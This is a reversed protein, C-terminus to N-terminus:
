GGPPWHRRIAEVIAKTSTDLSAGLITFGPRLGARKVIIDGMWRNGLKLSAFVEPSVFVDLRGGGLARLGTGLALEDIKGWPIPGDSVGPMDLGDRGAVVKPTDDRFQQGMTVGWFVALGLFMLPVTLAENENWAYWVVAVALGFVLSAFILNLGAMRKSRRVILTQFIPPAM